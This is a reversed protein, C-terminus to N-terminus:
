KTWYDYTVPPGLLVGSNKIYAKLDLHIQHTQYTKYDVENDFNMQMVVGFQSMARADGLDEFAGVELEHMVEIAELKKIAQILDSETGEKTKFYVVHVLQEKEPSKLAELQSEAFALKSKLATVEDTNAAQRCSFFALLFLTVLLSLNKM